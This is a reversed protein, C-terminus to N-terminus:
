RFYRELIRNLEYAQQKERFSGLGAQVEIEEPTLISDSIAEEEKKPELTAEKGINEFLNAACAVALRRNFGKGQLFHEADRKLFAIEKMTPIYEGVESLRSKVYHIEAEPNMALSVISVEWLEVEKLLRNGDKDFDYDKTSYGISMGRVAEMKLLTHIDNGLQTPALEGKVYLGSNDESMELWKGPVQDMQHAWFMQPLKGNKKHNALTRKFAGPVVIDGGHDVNGFVSGHGEFQMNKLSKIEIGTTFHMTKELQGFCIATRQEPDPYDQVMVDDAMCRSIFEDRSENSQRTPIPM